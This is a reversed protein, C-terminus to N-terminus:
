CAALKENGKNQMFTLMNKHQNFRSFIMILFQCLSLVMLLDVNMTLISLVILNRTTSDLRTKILGLGYRRKALSFSRKAEIRDANDVYETKRDTAANKRPRGLSPGTREKYREIAGILVDFENYADFFLRELRAFGNEDVSLDFKAGFEVPAGAKGRVISRIYPQSISVIWYLILRTKM